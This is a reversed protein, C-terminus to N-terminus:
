QTKTDLVQYERQQDDPCGISARVKHALFKAADLQCGRNTRALGPFADAATQEEDRKEGRDDCDLTIHTESYQQRKTECDCRNGDNAIQGDAHELPSGAHFVTTGQKGPMSPHKIPNIRHGSGRGQKREANGPQPEGSADNLFCEDHAM